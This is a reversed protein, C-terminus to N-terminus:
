RGGDASIQHRSIDIFDKEDTRGETNENGLKPELLINRSQELLRKGWERHLGLDGFMYQTYEINLLLKSHVMLVLAFSYSRGGDRNLIKLSNKGRLSNLEFEKTRCDCFRIGGVNKTVYFPKKNETSM